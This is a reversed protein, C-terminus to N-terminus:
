NQRRFHSSETESKKGPRGGKSGNKFDKATDKPQLCKMKLAYDKLFIFKDQKLTV